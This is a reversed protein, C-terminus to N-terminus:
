RGEGEKGKCDKKTHGTFDTELKKRTGIEGKQPFDSPFSRGLVEHLFCASLQMNM